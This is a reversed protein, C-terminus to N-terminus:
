TPIQKSNNLKPNLPAGKDDFMRFKIRGGHM